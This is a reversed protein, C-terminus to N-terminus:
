VAAVHLHVDPGDKVVYGDCGWDCGAEYAKAVEHVGLNDALHCIHGPSEDECLNVLIRAMRALEVLGYGVGQEEEHAPGDVLSRLCANACAEEESKAQGKDEGEAEKHLECLVYLYVKLCSHREVHSLQEAYGEDYESYRAHFTSFPHALPQSQSRM